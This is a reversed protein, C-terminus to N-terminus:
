KFGWRCRESFYFFVILYYSKLIVLRLNKFRIFKLKNQYITTSNIIKLAKVSM